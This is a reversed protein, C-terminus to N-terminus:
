DKLKKPYALYLGSSFHRFRYNKEFYVLGGFKYNEYEVVWMSYTDGIYDEYSEKLDAELIGLELNDVALWKLLDCKM